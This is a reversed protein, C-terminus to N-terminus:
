PTDTARIVTRDLWGIVEGAPITFCPAKQKDNIKGLSVVYFASVVFAKVIFHNWNGVSLIRSM